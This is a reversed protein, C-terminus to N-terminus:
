VTGAIEENGGRLPTRWILSTVFEEPHGGPEALIVV